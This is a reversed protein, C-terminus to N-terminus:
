VFHGTMNISLLVPIYMKLGTWIIPHQDFVFEKMSQFMRIKSTIKLMFIRATLINMAEIDIDIHLSYKCAVTNYYQYFSM